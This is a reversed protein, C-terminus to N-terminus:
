SSSCVSLSLQNTSPRLSMRQGFKYYALQHVEKLTNKKEALVLTTHM